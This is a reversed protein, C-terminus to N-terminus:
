HQTGVAGDIRTRVRLFGDMPELHIDSARQEIAEAILQNVFRVVPAESAQDRLRQLTDTEGASFEAGSLADSLSGGLASHGYVKTFAREFQAPTM